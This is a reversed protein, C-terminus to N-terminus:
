SMIFTKNQFNMCLDAALRPIVKALWGENTDKEALMQRCIYIVEPNVAFAVQVQYITVM